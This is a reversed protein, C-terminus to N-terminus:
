ASSFPLYEQNAGLARSARLCRPAFSQLCRAVACNWCNRLRSNTSRQGEMFFVDIRKVLRYHPRLHTKCM